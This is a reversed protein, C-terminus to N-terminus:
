DRSASRAARDTQETAVQATVAGAGSAEAVREPGRPADLALWLAGVGATVLAAVFCKTWSNV